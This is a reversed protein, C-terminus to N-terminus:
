AEKAEEHEISWQMPKWAWDRWSVDGETERHTTDADIGEYKGHDGWKHM